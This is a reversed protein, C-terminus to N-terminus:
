RRPKVAPAGPAPPPNAAPPKAPEAPETTILTAPSMAPVVAKVRDYQAPRHCGPACSGGSATKNYNIPLTWEGFTVKDAIMTEFRSAHVTHCARCSRGQSTKNVHVAHLNNSGNRFGTEKEPAVTTVLARDHCKFCLAYATESYPQYFSKEYVQALLGDNKGGHVDHCGACDGKEIPGHKHFAAATLERTAAVTKTKSVVIPKDHCTMCTDVPEKLLQKVHDSGHPTHCNLCSRPDTAAGHPHTAAAMTEGIPKHCSTCLDKPSAKLIKVEDSAHPKHCQLCDGEMPKHQHSSGAVVKAVDQHCSLCLDRGPMKLLKQHDATHSKHCKTCDEAAPKHAHSGNLADKHCSVCLEPITARKLMQRTESGHPDHCSSCDGKAFPQHSVPGETGTKDIHCFDCLQRGPRKMVFAHKAPDQYEHCADCASVATPGHLFTHKVQQSHCGSSLCDVVKTTPPAQAVVPGAFGALILAM